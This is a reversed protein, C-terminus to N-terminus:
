DARLQRAIAVCDKMTADTKIAAPTIHTLSARYGAARLGALMRDRPPIDGRSHRGIEGLPFYWPPLDIEAQMMELLAARDSWGWQQALQRMQTLMARSHLNGLWLPGSVVMPLPPDHHPCCARSLQRWNLTRYHGCAHCYGLFGYLTPDANSQPVIRAMVRCINQHWLAFVPQMGLGRAGAQQWLHGLLLRLGQEGVAPHSRPYAGYAALSKAANHGDRSRSDTDTLYVLGGLKVAGLSLMAYPAASGFSDVDVVDYFDRRIYCDSLVRAADDQTLHFMDPELQQSLNHRLVTAVDANAENAWVWDAGAELVYRLPRVGCGTMVDLVRLSQREARDVAAALIALDRGIQSHARYFAHGVQFSVKGEQRWDSSAM